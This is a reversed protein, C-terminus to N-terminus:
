IDDGRLKKLAAEDLKAFEAQSMDMVDKATLSVHRSNDEGAKALSPAQSKVTDATKAAAQKKREAAIDKETVRPAVSTATEQKRDTPPFLKKVAKQLAQTPTMGSMRYGRMLAAVDALKEPDHDDHNPDLEPYSEEIRELAMDYRATEAAQATAAAIRAESKTENIQREAQRIKSMMEVARETEGDAMLKNYQKELALVNDELKKLEEHADAVQDSRQFNQLQRELAERQTREKQLLEKHRSLPIRPEGKAKPKDDEDKPDSDTDKPGPDTDKPDNIDPPDNKLDDEDPLTDGRAIADAVAEATSM